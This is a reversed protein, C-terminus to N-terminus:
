QLCRLKHETCETRDTFRRACRPCVHKGRTQLPPIHSVNPNGYSSSPSVPPTSPHPKPPARAISSGGNVGVTTTSVGPIILENPRRRPVPMPGNPVPSPGRSSNPSKSTSSVVLENRAIVPRRESQLVDNGHRRHYDGGNVLIPPASNPLCMAADIAAAEGDRALLGIPSHRRNDPPAYYGCGRSSSNNTSSSSSGRYQFDQQHHQQNSAGSHQDRHHYPSRYRSDSGSSANASSHRSPPPNSGNSSSSSSSSPVVAANSTSHNYLHPDSRSSSRDYPPAATGVKLHHYYNGQRSQHQQRDDIDNEVFPDLPPVRVLGGGGGPSRSLYGKSELQKRFLEDEHQTKLRLQQGLRTAEASYHALETRCRDLQIRLSTIEAEYRLAM